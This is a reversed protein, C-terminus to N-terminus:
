GVYFLTQSWYIRNPLCNLKKNGYQSITSWLLAYRGEAYYYQLRNKQSSALTSTQLNCNNTLEHQLMLEINLGFSAIIISIDIYSWQVRVVRNAACVRSLKFLLVM